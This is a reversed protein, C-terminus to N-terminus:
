EFVSPKSFLDRLGDPVRAPRELLANFREWSEADLEFTRRDALVRRAEDLAADRVFATLTTGAADAAARALADDASSVRFNWRSERAESMQVDM